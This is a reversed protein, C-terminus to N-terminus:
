RDSQRQAGLDSGGDRRDRGPHQAPRRDHQVAEDTDETHPDPQGVIDVEGQGDILHRRGDCQDDPDGVESPVDASEREGADGQPRDGRQEDIVAHAQEPYEPTTMGFCNRPTTYDTSKPHAPATPGLWDAKTPSVPPTPATPPPGTPRDAPSSCTTPTPRGARPGTWPM